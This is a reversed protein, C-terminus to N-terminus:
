GHAVPRPSGHHIPNCAIEGTGLLSEVADLLGPSSLFRFMAPGRAFMIDMGKEIERSQDYLLGFRREFPEGEHLDSIKGQAQLERARREIWASFEARVPAIDSESVVDEVVVVGDKAYAAIQEPSLKM